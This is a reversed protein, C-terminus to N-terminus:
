SFLAALETLGRDLRRFYTARSLHLDAAVGVHDRHGRVYYGHLARGAEALTPDPSATLHDLGTLIRARLASPGRDALPNGALAADDRLHELAQKVDRRTDGPTTLRDLWAPLATLDQHYIASGRACGYPDHRAAGVHRFGLVRALDQYRPWSTAVVIRRARVGAVVIHRLLAARRPSDDCVAMGVLVGGGDALDGTHQQLVPEIASVTRADIRPLYAMGVARDEDHVVHFGDPSHDLWGALLRECRRVDLDRRKAWWRVLAAIRDHDGPGAPRPRPSDHGGPFLARRITPDDTLFLAHETLTARDGDDRATTLMLRTRAIATTVDARRAVPRRWRARLELLTRFPEAVALGRDTARVLDVEAVATFLDEAQDPLLDELLEEDGQGVVALVELAADRSHTVRAFVDRLAHDALAGAADAPIPTLLAQCLSRAVLPVGGALRVVVDDAVGRALALREIEADSWRHVRVVVADGLPMPAQSTVVARPGDPLHGDAYEARGPAEAAIAALVASKGVGLPGVLNVVLPGDGDLLSLVREVVARQSESHVRDRVPVVTTRM